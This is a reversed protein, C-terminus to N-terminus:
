ERRFGNEECRYYTINIDDLMFMASLSIYNYPFLFIKQSIQAKALLQLVTPAKTDTAM